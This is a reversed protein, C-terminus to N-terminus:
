ARVGGVVGPADDSGDGAGCKLRFVGGCRGRGSGSESAGSLTVSAGRNDSHPGRTDVGAQPRDSYPGRKYPAHPTHCGHYVGCSGGQASYNAIGLGRGPIELRMDFSGELDSFLQPSPFRPCLCAPLCAPRGASLPPSLLVSCCLNGLKGPATQQTCWRPGASWLCVLPTGAPMPLPPTRASTPPASSAFTPPPCVLPPQRLTYWCLSAPPRVLLPQHPQHPLPELLQSRPGGGVRFNTKCQLVVATTNPFTGCDLACGLPGLAEFRWRGAASATGASPTKGCHRCTGPAYPKMATSSCIKQLVLVTFRRRMRSDAMIEDRSSTDGYMVTNNM